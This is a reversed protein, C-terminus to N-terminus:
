EAGTKVLFINQLIDGLLKVIMAAAAERGPIEEHGPLMRSM